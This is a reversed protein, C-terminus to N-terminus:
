TYLSKRSSVRQGYQTPLSSWNPLRISLLGAATRTRLSFSDKISLSKEPLSIRACSNTPEDLQELLPFAATQIMFILHSSLWRVVDDENRFLSRTSLGSKVWLPYLALITPILTLLVGMMMLFYYMNRWFQFTNSDYIAAALAPKVKQSRAWNNKHNTRAQARLAGYNTAPFLAELQKRYLGAYSVHHRNREYHKLSLHRGFSALSIVFIGLLAYFLLVWSMGAAMLSTATFQVVAGAVTGMTGALAFILTTSQQRLTEHQRAQDCQEKYMAQLFTQEDQGKVLSAPSAQSASTSSTQM